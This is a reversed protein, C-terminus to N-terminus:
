IAQVPPISATLSLRGLVFIYATPLMLAAQATGPPTDPRGGISGSYTSARVMVDNLQSSNRITDTVDEHLVGPCGAEPCLPNERLGRAM